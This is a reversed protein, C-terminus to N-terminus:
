PAGLSDPDTHSNTNSLKKSLSHTDESNAEMPIHSMVEQFLLYHLPFENRVSAIFECVYEDLLCKDSM